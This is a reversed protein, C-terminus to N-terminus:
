HSPTAGPERTPAATPATTPVATPASTPVATPIPVATPEKTPASTPVSTPAPATTPVPTPPDPTATAERTPVSTPVPTDPVPQPTATAERTATVEPRPQPTATAERTPTPAGTPPTPTPTEPVPQPTATAERTPTATPGPPTQPTATAEPGPGPGPGPGPAPPIETPTPTPTPTVEPATIILGMPNECLDEVFALKRVDGAQFIVEWFLENVDLEDRRTTPYDVLTVPATGLVIKGESLIKRFTMTRTEGVVGLIDRAAEEDILDKAALDEALDKYAVKSLVNSTDFEDVNAGAAEFFGRELTSQQICQVLEEPTAPDGNGINSCDLNIFNSSEHIDEAGRPAAYGVASVWDGALSAVALATGTATPTATNALSWGEPTAKPPDTSAVRPTTDPQTNFVDFPNWGSAAAFETALVGGLFIRLAVIAGHKFSRDKKIGYVSAITPEQEQGQEQRGM